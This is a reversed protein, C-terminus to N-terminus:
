RAPAEWAARAIRALACTLSSVTAVFLPKRLITDDKTCPVLMRAGGAQESVGVVDFGCVRRM